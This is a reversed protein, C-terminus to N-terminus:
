EKVSEGCSSWFIYSCSQIPLKILDNDRIRESWRENGEPTEKDDDIINQIRRMKERM